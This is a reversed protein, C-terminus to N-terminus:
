FLGMGHQGSYGSAFFVQEWFCAATFTFGGLALSSHVISFPLKIQRPTETDRLLMPTQYYAINTPDNAQTASDRPVGLVSSGQADIITIVMM